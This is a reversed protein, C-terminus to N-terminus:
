SVRDIEPFVALITRYEQMPLEIVNADVSEGRKFTGDVIAQPVERFIMPIAGVPMGRAGGRLAKMFGMASSFSDSEARLVESLIQRNCEMYVRAGDLFDVPNPIGSTDGVKKRKSAGLRGLLDDKELELKITYQGGELSASVPITRFIFDNHLGFHRLQGLLRYYVHQQELQDITKRIPHDDRRGIRGKSLIRERFAQGAALFGNVTKDCLAHLEVATGMLRHLFQPNSGIAKQLHTPLKLLDGYFSDIVVYAILYPRVKGFYGLAQECEERADSPLPNAEIQHRLQGRRRQEAEDM